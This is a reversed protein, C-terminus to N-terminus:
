DSLFTCASFRNPLSLPLPDFVITGRVFSRAIFEKSCIMQSSTWNFPGAQSWFYQSKLIKGHLRWLQSSRTRKSKHVTFVKPVVAHDKQRLPPTNGYKRIAIHLPHHNSDSSYISTSIIMSWVSVFFVTLIHLCVFRKRPIFNKCFGM